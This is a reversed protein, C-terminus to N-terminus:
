EKHPSGVLRELFDVFAPDNGALRLLPLVTKAGNSSNTFMVLGTRTDPSFYAFTFTGDDAGTHMLYRQGDILFSEWGLGMGAEAPCHEPALKRCLDARRDAFVAAREARLTLPLGRGNMVGVLFQAYDSPTSYVDDSAVAADRLTPALATGQADHPLAIRGELWAQRTYTTNRMGNPTFVLSGAWADISKGTKARIFRALYEFGEGSYGFATGPDREFRLTGARWNPFGTEHGLALRPTLQKRRPDTALDPDTWYRSMSEDLMLKGRAALQLAVEASLPKALSAINYCTAPTAPTGKGADGIAQAYQLAGKDIVAFSISAVQHQRLLSAIAREALKASYDTTAPSPRHAFSLARTVVWRGGSNRWVMVFQAEGDCSGTAIQCFRHTGTSIAGFDHVPSVAFTHEVLERTYKGCANQRTNAIMADRSWTVGANDHYFELEPAFFAENRALESPDSCRNFAEFLESDLTHITTFLDPGESDAGPTAFPSATAACAVLTVLFRVTRKM